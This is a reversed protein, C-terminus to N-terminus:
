LEYSMKRLKRAPNGVYVGCVETSNLLVSGAGIFTKEALTLSDKIVAGLGCFTQNKIIVNGGTVVEAAIFCHDGIETHHSIHAGSRIVTNEGITAFPQIISNEYIITNDKIELHPWISARSSVYSIFNYGKSKAIEYREKRLGNISQFSIPFLLNVDEPCIKNEIDEFAFLPKNFAFDDNKYKSDVIYGSVKFPSDVELLYSILEAFRGDGFVYVPKSCDYKEYHNM